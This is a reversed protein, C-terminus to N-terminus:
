INFGLMQSWKKIVKNTLRYVYIKGKPKKEIINEEELYKIKSRIIRRSATGRKNRVLETIQSINQDKRDMLVRIIEKSIPDKAEPIILDPTLGGHDLILSTLKLYNQTTKSANRLPKVLNSLMNELETIRNNLERIEKKLDKEV